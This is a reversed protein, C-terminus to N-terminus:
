GLCLLQFTMALDYLGLKNKKAKQARQCFDDYIIRLVGLGLFVVSSFKSQKIGLPRYSVVNM